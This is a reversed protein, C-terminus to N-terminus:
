GAQCSKITGKLETAGKPGQVKLVYRGKWQTLDDKPKGQQAIIMLYASVDKIEDTMFGVRLEKEFVWQQALTGKAVDFMVADFKGRVAKIKIAGNPIQLAAGDGSGLNGQLEVTVNKDEITCDFSATAHASGSALVILATALISKLRLPM